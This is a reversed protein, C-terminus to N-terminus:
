QGVKELLSLDDPDAGAVYAPYWAQPSLGGPVAAPCPIPARHNNCVLHLTVPDLYSTHYGIRYAWRGSYTKRVQQCAPCPQEILLRWLSGNRGIQSAFDWDTGALFIRVDYPLEAPLFAVPMM